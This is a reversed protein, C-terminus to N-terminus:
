GSSQSPDLNPLLNRSEESRESHRRIVKSLTRIYELLFECYFILLLLPSSGRIGVIRDYAEPVEGKKASSASVQKQRMM